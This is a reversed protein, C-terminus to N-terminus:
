DKVSTWTLYTKGGVEFKGNLNKGELVYSLRYAPPGDSEFVASNKAPFTINYKITHDESDFYIARPTKGDLYVIMLDEHRQGAALQNFSRRMLVKGQLDPLFSFEGQGTGPEGTGAGKWKGVMFQLPEWRADSAQACLIGVSMLLAAIATRMMGQLICRAIILRHLIVVIYDRVPRERSPLRM